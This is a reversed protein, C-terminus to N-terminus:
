LCDNTQRVKHYALQADIVVIVDQRSHPLFYYVTFSSDALFSEIIFYVPQLSVLFSGLM